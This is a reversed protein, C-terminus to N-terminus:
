LAAGESGGTCTVGVSSGLESSADFVDATLPIISITLAVRPKSAQSRTMSAKLFASEAAAMDIMFGEQVQSRGSRNQSFTQPPSGDQRRLLRSHWGAQRQSTRKMDGAPFFSVGVSASDASSPSAEVLPTQVTPRTSWSTM